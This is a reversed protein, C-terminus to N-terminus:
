EHACFYVIKMSYSKASLYLHIDLGDDLIDLCKLVELSLRDFENNKHVLVAIM